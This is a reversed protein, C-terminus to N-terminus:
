LLEGLGKTEMVAEMDEVMRDAQRTDISGDRRFVKSYDRHCRETM